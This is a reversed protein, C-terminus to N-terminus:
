FFEIVNIILVYLGYSFNGSSFFIFWCRLLNCMLLEYLKLLGFFIFVYLFLLIKVILCNCECFLSNLFRLYERTSMIAFSLSIVGMNCIECVIKFLLFLIFIFKNNM